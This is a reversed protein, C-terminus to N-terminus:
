IKNTTVTSDLQITKVPTVEGNHISKIVVNYIADVYMFYLIGHKAWISFNQKSVKTKIGLDAVYVECTTADVYISNHVCSM